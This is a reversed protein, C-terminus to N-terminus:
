SQNTPPDFLVRLHQQLGITDLLITSHSFQNVSGILAPIQCIHPDEIAALLNRAIEGGHIVNFPRTFFLSVREPVPAILGLTNFRQACLEYAACLGQERQPYRSASLAAELHPQLVPGLELRSFASGFWKSYPTYRRELLFSLGMLLRVLRAALVRSGLEDGVEASRGVFQEEQGILDWQSALLYMWVPQPYYALQSRINELNLDDHWVGGSTLTLLRHESFTLWDAASLPRCTDWGLEAQFYAPLTTIEILHEVPGHQHPEACRVGHDNPDPPSFHTSYGHFVPPLNARLAENVLTHSSEFGEEPLFLQMRPGWMHDTSRRDDMGIVDSGFGILAASHLLGPCARALVPAVAETYFLQSLRLGPIFDPQGEKSM